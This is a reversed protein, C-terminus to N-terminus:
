LVGEKRPRSVMASPPFNIAPLRPTTNPTALLREIAQPM